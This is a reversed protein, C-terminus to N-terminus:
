KRRALYLALPPIMLWQLLPTVGLRIEGFALTPMEESYSWRFLTTNLWESFMTYGPGLVLMVVLIRRWHWQAFTAERGLMLAIALAGGGILVDGATCHIVAFALYGPSAEKWLTYLPLQAIEWVLNLGALWPLYRFLIFRRTEPDHFWAVPV